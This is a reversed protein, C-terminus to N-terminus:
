QAALLTSWYTRKYTEVRDQLSSDASGPYAATDWPFCLLRIPQLVTPQTLVVAVRGDGIFGVREPSVVEGRTQLSTDQLTLLARGTACDWVKFTGDQSASAMRLAPATQDPMGGSAPGEAAGPEAVPAAHPPTLAVHEIPGAHGTMTQIGAGSAVDWLRVTRDTSGSGLHQGDTSFALTTVLGTHGALTKTNGSEPEWLTILGGTEGGESGVALLGGEDAFALAVRQSAPVTLEKDVAAADASLLAVSGNAHAVALRGDPGYAFNLIDDRRALETGTGVDYIHLANVFRAAVRTGDPAVALRVVGTRGVPIECQKAGSETDWVRVVDATSDGASENAMTALYAGGPAFAVLQVRGQHGPIERVLRGTEGNYIAFTGGSRAAILGRQTDLAAKGLDATLLDSGVDWIKTTDDYSGTALRDGEPSFVASILEEDHGRLTTIIRMTETNWLQASQDRSATVFMTGAPNFAVADVLDKHAAMEILPQAAAVDWGRVWGDVSGAVLVGGDPSFGLAKNSAVRVDDLAGIQEFGVADWVEIGQDTGFAFHTGAPSFAIAHAVLPIDLTHTAVSEGTAADRLDIMGDFIAYAALVRSGDPSLELLVRGADELAFSSVLGGGATDWVRVTGDGGYAAVRGGARDLTVALPGNPTGAPDDYTFVTEGTVVNWVTVGGATAMAFHTGDSSFHGAYERGAREVLTQEVGGTTLNHVSVTGYVTAIALRGPACFSAFRANLPLTMRDANAMFLLRGWEWNRYQVPSSALLERAEAMNNEEIYQEALSINAYYLQNQADEKAAVAVVEAAEAKDREDEAIRMQHRISVYSYVAGVALILVAATAVSLIAKHRQIFRKLYDKFSYRYAGVFSGSMFGEVDKAMDRATQYRKAPDAQMARDVIAILEPPAEPELETVPKPPEKGVKKFFERVNGDAYPPKGSVIHYLAAGLSYVDSREDIQDVKGWAQEPPMYYPSGMATGAQTMMSGATEFESREITRSMGRAHIDQGGRIKAIGWDIVVTEGFEGVMVNMPKIDRHIVGRSHAYAIANCLDKFHTLLALREPLNSCIKLAEYLSNGRVLKMTYYLNGDERYGLEYMPVISPHELQGTIRAEQLFRQVIPVTLLAKTPTRTGAQTGKIGLHETLLEKLAIQRGLFKDKVLIIRGMGGRAYETVEEYRGPSEEVAPVEPEGVALGPGGGPLTADPDAAPEAVDGFSALTQAANGGRQKIADEVMEGIRERDAASIAGSETLHDPLDRSPDTEWRVTAAELQATSVRKMRTAMLGFLINRERDM